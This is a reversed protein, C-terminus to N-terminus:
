GGHGSGSSNVCVSIAADSHGVLAGADPLFAWLSAGM